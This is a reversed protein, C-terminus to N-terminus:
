PRIVERLAQDFMERAKGALLLEAMGVLWAALVVAEEGTLGNAVAGLRGVSVTRGGVLGVLFQNSTDM